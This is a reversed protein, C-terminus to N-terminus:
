PKPKSKGLAHYLSDMVRGANFPKVIFGSADHAIAEHVNHPSADGTVMIVKVEPHAAKIATLAELGDMEPMMVDLFVVEPKLQETMEVAAHGNRAEGVVECREARLMGRLLARMLDNDDVILVRALIQEM